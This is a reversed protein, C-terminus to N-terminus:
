NLLNSVNLRESGSPPKPAFDPEMLVRQQSQNSQQSWTRAMNLPKENYSYSSLSYTLPGPDLPLTPSHQSAAIVPSGTDPELSPMVMDSVPSNVTTATYVSGRREEHYGRSFTPQPLPLQRPSVSPLPLQMQRPSHQSYHHHHYHSSQQSSPRSSPRSQYAHSHSHSNSHSHSHSYHYPTTPSHPSPLPSFSQSFSPIEALPQFSPRRSQSSHTQVPALMEPDHVERGRRQARKMRNKNGNYWNKVANDSRISIQHSKLLRAIEAWKPGLVSVQKKIFESEQTTIPGRYLSPKLNQVWRERCQKASRGPINEAIEAWGNCLEDDGRMKVQSRLVNDETETWSGKTIGGANTRKAM